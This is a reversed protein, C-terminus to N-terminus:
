CTDFRSDGEMYRWGRLDKCLGYCGILEFRTGPPATIRAIAQFRAPARTKMLPGSDTLFQTKVTTDVSGVSSQGITIDTHYQRFIPLM